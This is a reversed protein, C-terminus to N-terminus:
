APPKPMTPLGGPPAPLGCNKVMDNLTKLLTSVEAVVKTPEPPVAGPVVKILVSYVGAFAAMTNSLCLKPGQFEQEVPASVPPLPLCKAGQLAALLGLVDGLPAAANGPVPPTTTLPEIVKKLTQALQEVLGACAAPPEAAEREATAAPVVALAFLVALLSATTAFKRVPM